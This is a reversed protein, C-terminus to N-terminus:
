GEFLYTKTAILLPLSFKEREEYPTIRYAQQRKWVSPYAFNNGQV